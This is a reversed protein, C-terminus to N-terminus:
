RAWPRTWGQTTSRRPRSPTRAARRRGGLKVFAAKAKEKAKDAARPDGAGAMQGVDWDKFADRLDVIAGALDWGVQLVPKFQKLGEALKGMGEKVGKYDKDDPLLDALGKIVGPLADLARNPNNAKVADHLSKLDGLVRFRKDVKKMVGILLDLKDADRDALLLKRIEDLLEKQEKPLPYRMEILGIIDDVNEKTLSDGKLVSRLLSSYARGHKIELTPLLIDATDVV